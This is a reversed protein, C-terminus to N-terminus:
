DHVMASQRRWSSGDAHRPMRVELRSSSQSRSSMIMISSAAAM